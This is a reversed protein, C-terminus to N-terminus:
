KIRLRIELDPNLRNEEGGEKIFLLVDDDRDQKFGDTGDFVIGSIEGQYAWIKDLKIERCKGNKKNRVEIYVDKCDVYHDSALINGYAHRCQQKLIALEEIYEEWSEANQFLVLNDATFGLHLDNLQRKQTLTLYDDALLAFADMTLNRTYKAKQEETLDTIKM